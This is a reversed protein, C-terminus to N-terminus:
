VGGIGVVMKFIGVVIGLIFGVVIIFIGVVKGSILGVVIIFIDDVIFEPNEISIKSKKESIFTMIPYLENYENLNMEIKWYSEDATKSNMLEM